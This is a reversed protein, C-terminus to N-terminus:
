AAETNYTVHQVIPAGVKGQGKEPLAYLAIRKELNHLYMMQGTPAYTPVSMFEAMDDGNVPWSFNGYWTGGLAEIKDKTPLKIM